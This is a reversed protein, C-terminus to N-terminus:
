KSVSAQPPPPFFLHESVGEERYSELEKAVDFNKRSLRSSAQTPFFLRVLLLWLTGLGLLAKGEACCGVVM